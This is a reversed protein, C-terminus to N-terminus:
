KYTTLPYAAARYAGGIYMPTWSKPHSGIGHTAGYTPPRATYYATASGLDKGDSARIIRGNKTSAYLPPMASGAKGPGTRINAGNAANMRAKRVAVNQELLPWPDVLAGSSTRRYYHCHCVGGLGTDGVDAIHAGRAVKAGNAQRFRSVHGYGVLAGSPEVVEVIMAGYSDRKNRITGAVSALLRDGCNYNGLDLAGHKGGFYADIDAYRQTVRFAPRGNPLKDKTTRNTGYPVIRPADTPNRLAM